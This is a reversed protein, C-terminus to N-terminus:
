GELLQSTPTASLTSALHLQFDAGAGAKATEADRIKVSGGMAEMLMKVISLGIGSGRSGGRIAASGRQFREFIQGREQLPVGPGEDVVHLILGGNNPASRSLTIPSGAPSYKIANDVLATLCQQIRDPDGFGTTSDTRDTLDHALRLRGGSNHQMREYLQLLMDDGDIAQCTITLHGADQRALDLLDRVLSTMRNAEENILRLSSAQHDTTLKRLLSQTHGSILTIPTRLEHAVGDIFSREHSWADSVRDQLNSVARGIPQLEDPLKRLDVRDQERPPTQFEAITEGFQKIPQILGRRLVARLLLSTFLSSTCAAVVLILFNRPDMAASSRTEQEVWLEIREGDALVLEMPDSSPPATDNRDSPPTGVRKLRVGPIPLETIFNELDARSWHSQKVSRYLARVIQTQRQSREVSSIQEHIVLFVGYGALVALLTTSQLWRRMSRIYVPSGKM